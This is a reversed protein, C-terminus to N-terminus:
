NEKYRKKTVYGARVRNGLKEVIETIRPDKIHLKDDINQRGNIVSAHDIGGTAAGISKLTFDTYNWALWGFIQRAEVYERRRSKSVILYIPVHLYASVEDLLKELTLETRGSQQFAHSYINARQNM